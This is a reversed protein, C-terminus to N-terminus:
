LSCAINNKLYKFKNKELDKKLAYARTELEKLSKLYNEITKDICNLCTKAYSSGGFCFSGKPILQKCMLCVWTRNSKILNFRKEEIDHLWLTGNKNGCDIANKIRPIIQCRGNRKRERLGTFV